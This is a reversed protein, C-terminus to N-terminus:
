EAGQLLLPALEASGAEVTTETDGETEREAPAEVDVSQEMSETETERDTESHGRTGTERPTAPHDSAPPKEGGERVCVRM